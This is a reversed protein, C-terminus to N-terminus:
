YKPIMGRIGMDVPYEGIEPQYYGDATLEHWEFSKNTSLSVTIIIDSTENGTIVLPAGVTPTAASVFEGTVLCSGPPIPSNPNPNVVTTGASQGDAWYDVGFVKTHFGWYGQAKNGAGGGATPTMVAGHMKYKSIYTKYGVFSAVTGVIVGASTTKVKIDYNQYALSVRLWKYTGVVSATIPVSFFIENDKVMVGECHTIATTGGCSTEPAKYLKVGAGVATLDGQALEIYHASMFNFVPSYAANGAGVTSPQGFNNLRVQTSDFKFKFILKPGPQSNNWVTDPFNCTPCNSSGTASPTIPTPVPEDEKKKCSFLLASLLCLAIFNKM